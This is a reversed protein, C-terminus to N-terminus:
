ARLIVTLRFHSTLMLHLRRSCRLCCVSLLIHRPMEGTPVDEPCEQLKLTQQDVYTSRDPIVVFPDLGCDQASAIDGLSNSCVRPLSVSGFASTVPLDMSHNCKSCRIHVAVAKPRTKTQSIVIGPVKLLTHVHSANISRIQTLAHQDSQLCVQMRPVSKDPTNDNFEISELVDQAAFELQALYKAPQEQLVGAPCTLSDSLM